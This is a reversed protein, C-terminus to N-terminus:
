PRSELHTRVAEATEDLADWLVGHGSRLTAVEGRPLAPVWSADGLVTLTPVGAEPPAPRAMESFAVVAMAPDWRAIYRNESLVFNERVEEELHIRPTEYPDDPDKQGQVAEEFSGYEERTRARDARVHALAPPFQLAPDLLILSRVREPYQFAIHAAIRGGYSFGLWDAMPVEITELLDNVHTAIDWPPEKGSAGHGRLDPAIVHRDKLREALHVFRRGHGSLGHLCVLPEGAPDGLHHVNLRV